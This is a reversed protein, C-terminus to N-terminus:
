FKELSYSRMRLCVVILAFIFKTVGKLKAKILALPRMKAFSCSLVSITHPSDFNLALEEDM